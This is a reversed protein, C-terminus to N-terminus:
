FVIKFLWFFVGAFALAIAVKRAVKQTPTLDKFPDEKVKIVPNIRM